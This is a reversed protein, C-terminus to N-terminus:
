DLAYGVVVLALLLLILAWFFGSIALLAASSAAQDAATQELTPPPEAQAAQSVPPLMTALFLTVIVGVLVFTLWPVGWALPGIPGLWIGGAWVALFLLVAFVVLGAMPGPGRRGLVSYVLVALGLGIVLAFIMDLMFM